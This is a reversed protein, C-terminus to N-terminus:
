TQAARASLYVLSSHGRQWGAYVKARLLCQLSDGYEVTIVSCHFSETFVDEPVRLVSM